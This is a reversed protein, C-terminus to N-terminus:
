SELNSTKRLNYRMRIRPTAEEVAKKKLVLPRGDGVFRIVTFDGPSEFAAKVSALDTIPQNNISEVIGFRFDGAYTNVPDPLITSLTILQPFKKYLADPLYSNFLFNLRLNAPRLANILNQDVPQFVLGAYSVFPANERFSIANLRHPFNKLTLEVELLQRERLVKLRVKDGLFKREVIEALEVNENELEVSGDSAIPHGDIALLVDGPFIKGDASGGGFVTGVLVGNEPDTLGLARRAAPNFLPYYTLALDVYEDYKGDAVDALFRKVVPTPIMYGVNQAVDGRFGQFAVGVVKGDQIVPGGSNGPNIAADIQIALHADAGSHSYPQFDIRSVVGRTVSLRDGGIPFGYVSVTSEIVPLGGIPLPRIGGFFAPYDVTLLALDCDHAIHEVRARYPRPDGSRTVTIFRAHSVVHANTMIRNGDVVFGTGSSRRTRGPEWPQRYDPEQSTTEIRVVSRVIADESIALAEAPLLATFFAFFAFTPLFSSLLLEDRKM